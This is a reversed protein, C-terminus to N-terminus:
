LSIVCNMLFVSMYMEYAPLSFNADYFESLKSLRSELLGNYIDKSNFKGSAIAFSAAHMVIPQSQAVLILIIIVFSLFVKSM